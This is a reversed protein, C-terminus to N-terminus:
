QRVGTLVELEVCPMSDKRSEADEAECQTGTVNDESRRRTEIRLSDGSTTADSRVATLFCSETTGSAVYFEARMGGSIAEAYLTGFLGGPEDCSTGAADTCSVYEIYEQGFLEGEIFKIFAPGDAVPAGEADCSVDNRTHTSVSWVGLLEEGDKGGCGALALTVLILSQLQKM